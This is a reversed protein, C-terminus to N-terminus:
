VIGALRLVKIPYIRLYVRLQITYKAEHMYECRLSINAM